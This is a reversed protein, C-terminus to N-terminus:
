AAQDEAADHLRDFFGRRAQQASGNDQQQDQSQQRSSDGSYQGRSRGDGANQQQSQSQQQADSQNQSQSHNANQSASTAMPQVHLREVSMGKSELASRLQALQNTLLTQASASEAHFSASVSTGTIQMQIRVTGMEPPTLRLTVAGGRQQVANALGRTLRASNLSDNDSSSIAQQTQVLRAADASQTTGTTNIPLRAESGAQDPVSFTTTVAANSNASTTSTASASATAAKSEGRTDSSNTQAQEGAPLATQVTATTASGLASSGTTGQTQNVPGAGNGALKNAALQAEASQKASSSVEKALETEIQQTVPSKAQASQQQGKADGQVAALEAAATADAQAKALAAQSSEEAQLDSSQEGSTEQEAPQKSESGESTEQVKEEASESTKSKSETAEAQDTQVQKEDQASKNKPKADVANVSEGREVTRQANAQSSDRLLDNFGPKPDKGVEEGRSRDAGSSKPSPLSALLDQVGQKNSSFSVISL